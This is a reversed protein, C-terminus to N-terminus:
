TIKPAKLMPQTQAKNTRWLLGKARKGFNLSLFFDFCSVMKYSLKYINHHNKKTYLYAKYIGQFTHTSNLFNHTNITNILRLKTKWDFKPDREQGLWSSWNTKKKHYYTSNHMSSANPSRGIDIQDKKPCM